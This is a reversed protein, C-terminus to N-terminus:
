SAEQRHRALRMRAMHAQRAMEVRRAREAPSLRSDPDVDAALKDLFGDRMRQTAATRDETRSWRTLAALRAQESRQAPTLRSVRPRTM